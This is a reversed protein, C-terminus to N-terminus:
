SSDRPYFTAIPLAWKAALDFWKPNRSTILAIKDRRVWKKIEKERAIADEVYLFREYYVLRKCGYQKSFGNNIAAKHEAVRRALDNTMGIYLTGSLSALIYTYFWRQSM